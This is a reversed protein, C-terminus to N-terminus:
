SDGNKALIVNEIKAAFDSEKACVAMRYGLIEYEKVFCDCLMGDKYVEPHGELRIEFCDLPLRLGEGTMKVYSEKLTWVRVFDEPKRELYSVEGKSFFREGIKEKGSSCEQEVDCGVIEESVACVVINHSHSLNFCLGKVQPKGYEDVYVDTERVGHCALAEKLLLGAGLSQKRGAVMKYRVIKKKREKSLGEMIKPVELPDPLNEINAMYVHVM